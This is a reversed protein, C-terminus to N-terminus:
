VKTVAEQNGEDLALKRLIRYLSKGDLNTGQKLSKLIRTLGHRAIYSKVLHHDSVIADFVPMNDLVILDLHGISYHDSVCTRSYQTVMSQYGSKVATIPLYWLRQILDVSCEDCILFDYDSKEGNLEFFRSGMLFVNTEGFIDILVKQFEM